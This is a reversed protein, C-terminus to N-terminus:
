DDIQQQKCAERLRDVFLPGNGPSIVINLGRKRIIEVVSKSSTAFRIGWYAFAKRGSTIQSDSINTLAIDVYLPWGLVIKLKDEFVQHKKPLVLYFLFIVFLSGSFVAIVGERDEPILIIGVILLIIPIGFLILRLWCDYRARDEYLLPKM